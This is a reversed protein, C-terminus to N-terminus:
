ILLQPGVAATRTTTQAVRVNSAAYVRLFGQSMALTPRWEIFRSCTGLPAPLLLDSTVSDVTEGANIAQYNASTGSGRQCNRQSYFLKLFECYHPYLLVMKSTKAMYTM